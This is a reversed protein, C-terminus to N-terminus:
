STNIKERREIAFGYEKSFSPIALPLKCISQALDKFYNM